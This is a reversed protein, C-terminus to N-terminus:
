DWPKFRELFVESVLLPQNHIRFYSRRGWAEGSQRCDPHIYASDGSMLSVQFAGRRMSPEKFILAGLSQNGLHRLRRLPGKLSSVPIVSRAYVWPEDLCHLTVERILAREGQPIGLFRSESLLPRGIGQSLKRVQLQGGSTCLLHATLSGRDLLWHRVGHPLQGADLQRSDRWTPEIM